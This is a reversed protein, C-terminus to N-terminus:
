KLAQTLRELIMRRGLLPIVKDLEPGEVRGTLAARLPAFLKKGKLGTRRKLEAVTQPFDKEEVGELEKVVEKMAKVAELAGDEALVSRAKDDVSFEGPLFMPLYGRIEVLTEANDKIADMVRALWEDSVGKFPLDQIFPRAYRLIEKGSMTRLHGRNVWRLKGIDFAAPSRAIGELSFSKVMEEWMIIEEGGSIGGGLLALYNAVAQPLFGEDRYARVSTAGYRKSLREGEPAVMLPHHAFRPPTFGLAEYLLIQRPTNPLHDEGRIVHTIAMLADDIVAAFNYAPRNDSRMIVFDELLDNAFVKKGHIIDHVITAGEPVVFRLSPKRGESEFEKVQQSSLRRCTGLYRPREGKALLQERMQTLEEPTCYCRYAKDHQLLIQAYEQYIETRESQRYPGHDGGTDPGEDWALGLWRLDEMIGAEAAPDLRAVDTDEIRLIFTGDNNLAFLKNYLATRANGIHLLGTPSPAFRVRVGKKM